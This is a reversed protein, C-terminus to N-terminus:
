LTGTLFGQPFFLGSIWFSRPTGNMLWDDMFAIREKLDSYWSALPKLSPYAVKAWNAPVQNNQLCLYMGDLVESMVIFGHIAKDIDQLSIEMVKLMRNFKEVEQILVTTFSPYLNNTMKFQEKKGEALNMRPPLESLLQKAKALVIEDTTMGGGGSSIRSQISLVTEVTNTSEQKQYSIDANEHLGFVEPGDQLPLGDIYNLYVQIDGFAPAYYKGSESYVYGDELNEVCMYKSLTAMLCRLDNADTVRGGYNIQGTIWLIADWPIEEQEELFMRLMTISTELDSDNFEYLINWGLPGFKRREQVIGHFFSLGFVLKRWERGKKCSDLFGPEFENYTRKLNAKLGRPPETTLKVANQLVFVPFFACPMSTIYLRFDEHIDTREQFAIVQKELQEMYNEALHCNQLLVWDGNTTASDILRNAKGEQGQGLSIPFLKDGYGKNDSFKLLQSTPDAGTSLIFILPTKYDTDAQVVEMTVSQSEVFYNGMNQQVYIQFAFMIKEPRFAKLVNLRQFDDLKDKWDLPLPDVHPSECQAWELWVAENEKMSELLGGYVEPETVEASWLFDVSYDNLINTPMPNPPQKKKESDPITATGRLILNWTNPLIKGSDRDISTAILFSFILKDREFLGRSINSFIM